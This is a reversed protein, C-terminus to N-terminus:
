NGGLRLNQLSALLDGSIGFSTSNGVLLANTPTTSQNQAEWLTTFRVLMKDLKAPDKLDDINIKKSLLAAQKDIDLVGSSEPLGAIVQAVKLLAKDALLGYASTVTPAVRQFYLALQVGQNQDGAQEEMVQRNYKDVTGQQAADFATTAADYRKFNFVDAFAKYRKDVLKNAFADPDDTGETLVKRMFAKAYTMDELGFAKMAYNFLRTNGLFDDVTKVDSIHALYYDSARKVDPEAATTKLTRDLNQSIIKFSATATLVVEIRQAHL